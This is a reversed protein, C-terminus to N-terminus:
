SAPTGPGNPNPMDNLTTVTPSLDGNLLENLVGELHTCRAALNELIDLVGTDSNAAAFTDVAASLTDFNISSGDLITALDGKLEDISATNAAIDADNSTINATNTNISALNAAIDVDNSTVNINTDIIAEKCGFITNDTLDDDTAGLLAADGDARLTAEASVATTRANVEATIAQLNTTINATNTSISTTNSAINNANTNIDTINTSVGANVGRITLNGFTDGVPGLLELDKADRALAETVIAAANVTLKQGVNHSSASLDFATLVNGTSVTVSNAFALPQSSTFLTSTDKSELVVTSASSTEDSYLKLTSRQYAM